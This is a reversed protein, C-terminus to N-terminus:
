RPGSRASRILQFLRRTGPIQSSTGLEARRRATRRSRCNMLADDLYPHLNSWNSNGKGVSVVLMSAARTTAVYLLRDAEADLFQQEENQFHDWDAPTAVDRKAWKGHAATIGMYGVSAEGTRDIHCVPTGKYSQATDTLFVVPAELGKAKHLNMVRVVNPNPTLATCGETEDQASLKDLYDILDTASDFATATSSAVGRNSESFGGLAINGEKGAAASALLGLDAAIRNVAVSYPLARM